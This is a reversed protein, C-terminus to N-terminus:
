RGSRTDILAAAVLPQLRTDAEAVDAEVLAAALGTELHPTPLTGLLRFLRRSPEPLGDYAQELLWPPLEWQSDADMEAILPSFSTLGRRRAQGAVLRLALPLGDLM